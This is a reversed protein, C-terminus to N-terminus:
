IQADREGREHVEKNRDDIGRDERACIRCFNRDGVKEGRPTTALKKCCGAGM